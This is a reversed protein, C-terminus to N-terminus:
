GKLHDKQVRWRQVNCEMVGYRKAPQCNNPVEAANIVKINFNADYSWRLRRKVLEVKSGSQETFDGCREM